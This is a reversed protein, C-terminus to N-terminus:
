VKAEESHKAIYEKRENTEKGMFVKIMNSSKEKDSVIIQAINRTSPNLLTQELEHADMEGLGKNRNVQFKENNHEEKYEKLAKQDRLFIYENKKTTVRFLPPIACCIHGNLVLEPCIHWFLTILLNKISEGDPDM